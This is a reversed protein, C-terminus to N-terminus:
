GLIRELVAGAAKAEWGERGAEVDVPGDIQYRRLAEALDLRAVYAVYAHKGLPTDSLRQRLRDYDEESDIVADGFIAVYSGEHQDVLDDRHNKLYNLAAEVYSKNRQKVM